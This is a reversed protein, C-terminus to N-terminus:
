VKCTIFLLISMFKENRHKVANMFLHLLVLALGMSWTLRIM